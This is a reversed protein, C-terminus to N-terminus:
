YGYLDLALFSLGSPGKHARQRRVNAFITLGDNVTNIYQSMESVGVLLPLPVSWATSDTVKPADFATYFIQDAANLGGADGVFLDTADQVDSLAKCVTFSANAGTIGTGSLDFNSSNLAISPQFPNFLPTYVFQVVNNLAGTTYMGDVLDGAKRGMVSKDASAASINFPLPHSNWAPAGGMRIWYRAVFGSIDATDAVICDKGTNSESLHIDDIVLTPNNVGVRDDPVATWVM